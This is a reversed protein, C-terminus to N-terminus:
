LYINLCKDMGALRLLFTDSSCVEALNKHIIRQIKARYWKGDEPRRAACFTDAELNIWEYESDSYEEDMEAM